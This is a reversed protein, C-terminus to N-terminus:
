LILAKEIKPAIFQEYQKIITINCQTCYEDKLWEIFYKIDENNKPNIKMQRKKEAILKYITSDKIAYYHIFEIFNNFRQCKKLEELSKDTFIKSKRLAYLTPVALNVEIKNLRLEDLFKIGEATLNYKNNKM